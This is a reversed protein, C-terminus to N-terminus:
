RRTRRGTRAGSRAAASAGVQGVPPEPGPEALPEPRRCQLRLLQTPSASPAARRLPPTFTSPFPSFGRSSRSKFSSSAHYASDTKHSYILRTANRHSVDSVCAGDRWMVNELIMVSASSDLHYSLVSCCQVPRLTPDPSSAACTELPRAGARAARCGEAPDTKSSARGSAASSAGRSKVELDNVELGSSPSRPSRHFCALSRRPISGASAEHSGM